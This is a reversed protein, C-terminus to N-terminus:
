LGLVACKFRKFSDAEMMKYIYDQAENFIMKDPLVVENSQLEIKNRIFSTINIETRAGTKIYTQYIRQFDKVRYRKRFTEVLLWFDLNEESFESNLFSRFCRCKEPNQLVDLLTGDFAIQFGRNTHKNGIRMFVKSIFNTNVGHRFYEIPGDEFGKRTGARSGYKIFGRFPMFNAKTQSDISSEDASKEKEDSDDAEDGMYIFGMDENTFKDDEIMTNMSNCLNSREISIIRKTAPLVEMAMPDSTTITEM